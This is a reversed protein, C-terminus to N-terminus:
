VEGKREIVAAAATTERLEKAADAEEIIKVYFSLTSTIERAAADDKRKFAKSLDAECAAVAVRTRQLLATIESTSADNDSILERADMVQALLAPSAPFARRVADGDSKDGGGGSGNGGGEESAAESDGLLYEARTLSVRLTQYAINLASSARAAGESDAACSDAFFDPHVQRQLKKFASELATVNVDFTRTSYTPQHSSPHPSHLTLVLTYFVNNGEWGRCEWACESGRLIIARM